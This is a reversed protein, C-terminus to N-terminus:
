LVDILAKMLQTLSQLTLEDTIKAEANLKARAGQILLKGREPIKAGLTNMILILSEFTKEGLASAVIVAVPKEYFITTSVAWELANKLVGPLSFVYEPTCIIIGDATEIQKRFDIVSQAVNEKDDDPNFYPLNTIGNYIVVEVTEPYFNAIVKLISENSSNSRTSGSIALLKKLM